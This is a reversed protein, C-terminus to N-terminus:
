FLQAWNGAPFGTDPRVAYGAKANVPYGAPRISIWFFCYRDYEDRKEIISVGCM